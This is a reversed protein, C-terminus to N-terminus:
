FCECRSGCSPFALLPCLAIHKVVELWGEQCSVRSIFLTFQLVCPSCSTSSLSLLPSFDCWWVHMWIPREDFPMHEAESCLPTLALWLPTNGGWGKSFLSLCTGRTKFALEGRGLFTLDQFYTQELLSSILVHPPHGPAKPVTVWITKNM